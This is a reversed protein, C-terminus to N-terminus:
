LGVLAVAGGRMDLIDEMLLLEEPIVNVVVYKVIQGKMVKSDITNTQDTFVSININSVAKVESLM